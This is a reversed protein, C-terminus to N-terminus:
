KYTGLELPGPPSYEQLGCISCQKGYIIYGMLIHDEGMPEWIHNTHGSLISSEVEPHFGLVNGRRWPCM